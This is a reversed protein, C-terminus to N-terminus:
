LSDIGALAVSTAAPATGRTLTTDTVGGFAGELRGQGATHLRIQKGPTIRALAARVLSDQSGAVQASAVGPVFAVLLIVSVVLTRSIM